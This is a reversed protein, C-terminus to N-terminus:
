KQSPEESAVGWGKTVRRVVVWGTSEPCDRASTDKGSSQLIGLLHRIKMEQTKLTCWITKCMTTEPHSAIVCAPRPKLVNCEPAPLHEDYCSHLPVLTHGIQQLDPHVTPVQSLSSGHYVIERIMFSTVHLTVHHCSYKLVM